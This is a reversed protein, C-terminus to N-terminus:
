LAPGAAPVRPAIIKEDIQDNDIMCVVGIPYCEVEREPTIRGPDLDHWPNM